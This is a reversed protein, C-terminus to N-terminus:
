QAEMARGTEKAAEFISTTLAKWHEQSFFNPDPHEIQEAILVEMTDTVEDNVSQITKVVQNKTTDVVVTTRVADPQDTYRYVVTMLAGDTVQSEVVGYNRFQDIYREPSLAWKQMNTEWNKDAGQLADAQYDLILQDNFAQVEEATLATVTNTELDYHYVDSRMVTEFTAESFNGQGLEVIKEYSLQVLFQTERAINEPENPLTEMNRTSGFNGIVAFQNEYGETTKKNAVVDEPHLQPNFLFPKWHTKDRTTPKDTLTNYTNTWVRLRPMITGVPEVEGHSLAEPMEPLPASTTVSLTKVPGDYGEHEIVMPKMVTIKEGILAPTRAAVNVDVRNCAVAMDTVHADDFFCNESTQANMVHNLTSVIGAYPEGNLPQTRISMMGVLPQSWTEVVQNGDWQKSITTYNIKMHRIAQASTGFTNTISDAVVSEASQNTINAIPSNTRAFKQGAQQIALPGGALVFVLAGVALASAPILLRLWRRRYTSTHMSYIQYTRYAQITAYRLEETHDTREPIPVARLLQELSEEFQSPSHKM